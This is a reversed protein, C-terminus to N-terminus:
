RMPLTSVHGLRLIRVGPPTVPAETRPQLTLKVSPAHNFRVVIQRTTKLEAQVTTRESMM